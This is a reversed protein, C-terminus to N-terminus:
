KNISEYYKKISVGKPIKIIDEVSWGQKLRDTVTHHTVKEDPNMSAIEKTTYEKGNYEIVVRAKLPTNIAREVSWGHNNIRCTINGSTLNYPSLQALQYSNYLKGNYEYTPEVIGFPQNKTGKLQSIIRELDWGHQFRNQIDQRTLPVKAMALVEDTTYEVGDFVHKDERHVVKQNLARDIDWNRCNIRNTISHGDVGEAGYKNALESATLQEGNYEYLKEGSTNLGGVWTNYGNEITNFKLIYEREIKEAEEESIGKFLINHEINDWGFKQIADFIKSQTEYGLGNKWRAKTTQSTMGIYRKGNPFVHEYVIYTKSM